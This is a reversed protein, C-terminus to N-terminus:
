ERCYRMTFATKLTHIQLFMFMGDLAPQRLVASFSAQVLVM